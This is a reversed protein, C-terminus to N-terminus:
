RMPDFVRQADEIHRDIEEASAPDYELTFAGQFDIEVLESAMAAFDINGRGMPQHDDTAGVNDHIHLNTILRAEQHVFRAHSGYARLANLFNAHGTDFTIGLSPHDVTRVIRVLNELYRGVDSGNEITFVLGQKEALGALAAFIESFREIQFDDTGPEQPGTKTHTVTYHLGLRASVAIGEELQRFAEAGIRPNPCTLFNYAFPLHVGRSDFQMLLDRMRSVAADTYQWPWLIWPNGDLNSMSIEIHNLGHRRKLELMRDALPELEGHGLSSLAIGFKMTFSARLAYRTTTLSRTRTRDVM